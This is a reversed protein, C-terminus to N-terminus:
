TGLFLIQNKGLSFNGLVVSGMKHNNSLVIYHAINSIACCSGGDNRRVRGKGVHSNRGNTTIM